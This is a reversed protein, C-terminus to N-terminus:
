YKVAKFIAYSLHRNKYFYELLDCAKIFRDISHNSFSGLIKDRNRIANAKWNTMTPVVKESIDISTIENFGAKHFAMWYYEQSALHTKGFVNPMRLIPIFKRLLVQLHNLSWLRNTLMLDCLLLTGNKKLVRYCEHILDVKPMLHSSELVWILDFGNAPLGNDTGDAV